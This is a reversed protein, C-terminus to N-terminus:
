LRGERGGWGTGGGGMVIYGRSERGAQTPTRDARPGDAWTPEAPLHPRRKATDAAMTRASHKEGATREVPDAGSAPRNVSCRPQSQLLASLASVVAWRGVAGAPEIELEGTWGPCLDPAAADESGGVQEGM